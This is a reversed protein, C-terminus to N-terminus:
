NAVVLMARSLVQRTLWTLERSTRVFEFEEGHAFCVYPIGHFLNLIVAMVGEPLCCGCHIVKVRESRVLRRLGLVARGYRALSAPRMLGPPRIRLPLRVVRLDHTRDFEEQGPDVGAAVMVGRRPLRRYIEWFWRGSGGVTPPFIETILLASM